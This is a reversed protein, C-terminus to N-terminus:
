TCHVVIVFTLASALLSLHCPELRIVDQRELKKQYTKKMDVKKEIRSIVKSTHHIVIVFTLALVLLSLHCPELCTM